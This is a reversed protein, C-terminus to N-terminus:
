RIKLLLFTLRKNLLTNSITTEMIKSILHKSKCGNTKLEDMLDCIKEYVNLGVSDFVERHGFFCCAKDTDM